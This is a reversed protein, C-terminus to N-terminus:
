TLSPGVIATYFFFLFLIEKSSFGTTYRSPWWPFVEFICEFLSVICLGEFFLLHLDINFPNLSKIASPFSSSPPNESNSSSGFCYFFIIFLILPFITWTVTLLKMVESFFASCNELGFM